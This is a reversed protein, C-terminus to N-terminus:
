IRARVQWQLRREQMNKAVSHQWIKHLLDLDYFASMIFLVFLEPNSCIRRTSTEM